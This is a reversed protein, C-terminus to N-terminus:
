RRTRSSSVIALKFEMSRGDRLVKVTVSSGIRSDSIMRMFQSPDTIAQGNLAVIVDGPRIGADYAESDRTM